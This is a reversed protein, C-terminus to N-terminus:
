GFARAFKVAVHGLGGLGVVG